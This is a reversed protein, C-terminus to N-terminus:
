RVGVAQGGGLLQQPRVEAHVPKFPWIILRHFEVKAVAVHDPQEAAAAQFDLIEELEPGPWTSGCSIRQCGQFPRPLPWAFFYPLGAFEASELETWFRAHRVRVHSAGNHM